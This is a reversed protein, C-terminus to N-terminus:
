ICNCSIPSCNCWNKACTGPSAVWKLALSELQSCGDICASLISSLLFIVLAIPFLFLTCLILMIFWWIFGLIGEVGSAM